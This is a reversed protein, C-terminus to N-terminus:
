PYPFVVYVVGSVAFMCLFVFASISWMNCDPCGCHNDDRKTLYLCIFFTALFTLPFPILFGTIAHVANIIGLNIVLLAVILLFFFM